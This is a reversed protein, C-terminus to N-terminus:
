KVFKVVTNNAKVFYLGPSYNSVNFVHHTGEVLLEEMKVGVSNYIAVNTNGKELTVNLMDKAPNPYVNLKELQRNQAIGEVYDWNILASDAAEILYLSDMYIDVDTQGIQFGFDYTQTDDLLNPTFSIMYWQQDPTVTLNWRTQGAIPEAIEPTASASNDGWHAWGSRQELVLQFNTEEASWMKWAAIFRDDTKPLIRNKDVEQRVKFDYPNTLVSDSNMHLVGDEVWFTHTTYGDGSPWAANPRGNEQPNENYGDVIYSVEQVTTNQGSINIMTPEGDNSEVFEDSSTASVYLVGDTLPTVVGDQSLKAKATSEPLITWKLTKDTADEPYIEIGIQLTQNDETIDGGTLTIEDIDVRQAGDLEIIGADDMNDWSDDDGNLNNAWVIRNRGDNGGPSDNDVICVEFGIEGQIDVVIGDEDKLSEFPVFYEVFWHPDDTANISYKYGLDPYYDEHLTGDDFGADAAISTAPAFKYHGSNGGEWGGLGDVKEYNCDFFVEVQDYRTKSTQTEDARQYYPYYDNDAVNVLVYIGEDTWLGKWWTEGEAGVTPNEDIYIRDVNIPDAESWVDDIGGGVEPAVSAKPLLAHPKQASLTSILIVSMLFTFLKRM